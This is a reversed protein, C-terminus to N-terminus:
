LDEVTSVWFHGLAGFGMGEVYDDATGVYDFLNEQVWGQEPDCRYQGLFDSTMDSIYVYPTMTNQDTVVEMGDGHSGALDPWNFLPVWQNSGAHFGHVQRNENGVIWTANVDDYGLFSAPGPASAVTTTVGSNFIFETVTGVCQISFMRDELPYIESCHMGGVQTEITEIFTLVREEIPGPHDPNDPHQNPELEGDGDSDLLEIQYVDVGFPAANHAGYLGGTLERHVYIKDGYSGVDMGGLYVDNEPSGAQYRFHAYQFYSGTPTTNGVVSPPVCSGQQVDCAMGAGCTQVLQWAVPNATTDCSMLHPGDCWLQGAQCRVCGQGEVCTGPSCTGDVKCNEESAVTGTDSCHIVTHGECFSEGSRGACPGPMGGVGQGGFALGGAGNGGQSSGAGAGSNGSGPPLEGDESCGHASSVLAAAAAVAAITLFPRSRRLVKTETTGLWSM